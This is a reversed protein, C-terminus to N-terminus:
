GSLSDRIRELFWREQLVPEVTPTRILHRRCRDSRNPELTRWTLMGSAEETGGDHADVTMPERLCAIGEQRVNHINDDLLVHHIHKTPSGWVPKGAWPAYHHAHWFDYDDQVGCVTHSQLLAVVQSDGSAVCRSQDHSWLQYVHPKTRTWRGVYLQTHPDLMLQPNNYDPYDPHQGTAFLRLVEALDSLDSGMTRLVITTRHLHFPTHRLFRPVPALSSPPGAQNSPLSTLERLTEFFAPLVHPLLPHTDHLHNLSLKRQLLDHMPKYIKGHHEVFSKSRKKYSTRYYPCCGDPWTWKTYLPPPGTSSSDEADSSTDELPTGNWWHTPVVQSTDELLSGEPIQVFASKALMKNLVDERSDGGAEDGVLITENIDWHVVLHLPERLGRTTGSAAAADDAAAESDDDCADTVMPPDRVIPVGAEVWAAEHSAM